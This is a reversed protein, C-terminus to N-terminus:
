KRGESIGLWVQKGKQLGTFIADNVSASISDEEVDKSCTRYGDEYGAEHAREVQLQNITESASRYLGAYRDRDAILMEERRDSRKREAEVLKGAFYYHAHMSLAGAAVGCIVIATAILFDM